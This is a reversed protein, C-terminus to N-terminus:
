LSTILDDIENKLRMKAKYTPPIDDKYIVGNYEKIQNLFTSLYSALKNAKIPTNRASVFMKQREAQLQWDSCILDRESLRRLIYALIGINRVKATRKGDFVEQLENATQAEVFCHKNLTPLLATLQNATMKSFCLDDVYVEATYVWTGDDFPPERHTHPHLKQWRKKRQGYSIWEKGYTLREKPRGAGKRRKEKDAM